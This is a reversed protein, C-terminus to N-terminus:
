RVRWNMVGFLNVAFYRNWDAPETNVFEGVSVSVRADLDVAQGAMEANNVLIDPSPEAGIAATV